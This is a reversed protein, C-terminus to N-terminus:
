MMAHQVPRVGGRLPLRFVRGTLRLVTVQRPLAADGHPRWLILSMFLLAARTRFFYPFFEEVAVHRGNVKRVVARLRLACLVGIYAEQSRRTDEDFNSTLDSSHHLRDAAFDGLDALREAV